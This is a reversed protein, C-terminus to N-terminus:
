SDPVYPKGCIKCVGQENVVGICAGDSCLIRASFDVTESSDESTTPMTGQTTDTGKRLDQGCLYCFPGLNLVDKGCRGCTVTKEIESSCKDCLM